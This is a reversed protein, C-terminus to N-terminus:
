LFRGLNLRNAAWAEMQRATQRPCFANYARNAYDIFIWRMGSSEQGTVDGCANVLDQFKRECLQWFLNTAMAAQKKGDAKQQKFYGFTAGYIAKAMNELKEM